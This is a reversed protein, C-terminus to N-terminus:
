LLTPSFSRKRDVQKIAHKDLLGQSHALGKGIAGVALSANSVVGLTANALSLIRKAHLDPFLDGIYDEIKNFTMGADAAM